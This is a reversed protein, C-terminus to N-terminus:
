IPFSSSHALTYHPSVYNLGLLVKRSRLYNRSGVPFSPFPMTHPHHPSPWTVDCVIWAFDALQLVPFYNGQHPTIALNLKRLLLFPILSGSVM